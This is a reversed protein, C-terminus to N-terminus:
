ARCTLAFNFREDGSASSGEVPFPESHLLRPRPETNVGEAGPCFRDVRVDWHLLSLVFM